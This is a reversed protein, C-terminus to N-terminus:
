CPSMRVNAGIRALLTDQVARGTADRAHLIRRRSHGGERTLHYDGGELDFPAGQDILWRLAAPAAEVVQRVVSRRV